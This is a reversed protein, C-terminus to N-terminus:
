RIILGLLRSLVFDIFAIFTGLFTASIVVIWTADKLEQRTPWSVKKVEIVVETIFKRVKGIM